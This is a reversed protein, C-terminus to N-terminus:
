FDIRERERQKSKNGKKDTFTLVIKDLYIFFSVSFALVM